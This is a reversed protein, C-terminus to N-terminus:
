RDEVDAPVLVPDDRGDLELLLLAVPHVDFMNQGVLFVIFAVPFVFRLRSCPLARVPGATGPLRGCGFSGGDQCGGALQVQLQDQGEGQPREAAVRIEVAGHSHDVGQGIPLFQRRLLGIVELDEATEDLIVLGLM